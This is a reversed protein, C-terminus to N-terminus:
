GGREFADGHVVDKGRYCVDLGPLEVTWKRGQFAQMKIALGVGKGLYTEHKITTKLIRRNWM